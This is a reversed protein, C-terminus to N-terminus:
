SKEDELNMRKTEDSHLIALFDSLHGCTELRGVSYGYELITM